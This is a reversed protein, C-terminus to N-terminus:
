FPVDGDLADAYKSREDGLEPTYAMLKFGYEMLAYLKHPEKWEAEDPGYGEIGVLLSPTAPMAARAEGHCKTGDWISWIVLSVQGNKRLECPLVPDGSSHHLCFCGVVESAELAKMEAIRQLSMAADYLSVGDGLPNTLVGSETIGWKDVQFGAGDAWAKFASLIADNLALRQARALQESVHMEAAMDEGNVAAETQFLGRAFADGIIRSLSDGKAPWFRSQLSSAAM